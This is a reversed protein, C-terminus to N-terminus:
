IIILKKADEMYLYAFIIQLPATLDLHIWLVMCLPLTQVWRNVGNPSIMYGFVCAESPYKQACAM